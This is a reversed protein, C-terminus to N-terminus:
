ASCRRGKVMDKFVDELALDIVEVSHVPYHEEIFQVAEPTFGGVTLQWERREVRQWITGAPAAEPACGDALVVRLRKTGRILEETPGHALLQGGVIIGVTDALRQVDSLTHSSFLVTRQEACITHLVGELFEERVLPDLGSTPEDLILVEPEHAVALLLALKALMGKSLQRVKRAPPLEFLDVLEACLADNWSPYLAKCFRIAERVRMWRHVYHLEPVYGVRQRLALEAALPCRGLVRVSGATPRLLGMLMRITTSKGAGNPGIFGFVEGPAISLSLQDVARLAGFRRTVNDIEIVPRRREDNM